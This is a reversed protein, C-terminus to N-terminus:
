LNPDATDVTGPPQVDSIKLLISEGNGERRFIITGRLKEALVSLSDAGLDKEGVQLPRPSVICLLSGERERKVAIKLVDNRTAAELARDLVLFILQQLLFPDNVVLLPDPSYDVQLQVDKLDAFRQAVSILNSVVSNVEFEAPREDVIHSFRNLNQIVEIGRLTQRSLRGHIRELKEISVPEGRQAGAIVDELLGCVQHITSIVNSLEHSVSATVRGFFILDDVQCSRNSDHKM